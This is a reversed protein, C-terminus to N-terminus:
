HPGAESGTCDTGRPLAFQSDASQARDSSVLPRAPQLRPSAFHALYLRPPLGGLASQKAPFRLPRSFTVQGRANPRYGAAPASGASESESDRQPRLSRVRSDSEVPFGSERATDIFLNRSAGRTFTAITTEVGAERALKAFELLNKAPGTISYAEIVALLRLRSMCSKRPGSALRRLHRLAQPGLTGLRLQHPGVRASLGHASQASSESEGLYEMQRIWTESDDPDAFLINKGPTVPLGEAGLPTSVVPVGAAMAELIKLRTGGGTRLPVIAALADRYYPRVDPVTGTVTVGELKGIQVVAPPPNAGVIWLQLDPFRQRLIPWIRQAFSTVADVNANYDMM